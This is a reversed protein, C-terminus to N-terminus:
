VRLLESKHKAFIAATDDDDESVVSEMAAVIQMQNERLQGKGEEERRLKLRIRAIEVWKPRAPRVWVLVFKATFVAHELAVLSLLLSTPSISPVARKFADSYYYILLANIVVSVVSLLEMVPLLPGVGNAGRYRPRRSKFLKLADTRIELFNNFLIFMLAFPFALSFSTLYGFQVAMEIMEITTGRYRARRMEAEILQMEVEAVSLEEAVGRLTVKETGTSPADLKGAVQARRAKAARRCKRRENRLWSLALPALTYVNRVTELMVIVVVMYTNLTALCDNNPCADVLPKGDNAEVFLPVNQGQFFSIYIPATYANIFRFTVSKLLLANEYESDTRWIELDTLWIGFYQWLFDMLQMFAVNVVSGVYPGWWRSSFTAALISKWGLIAIAAVMVSSMLFGTVSVTLGIRWRQRLWLQVAFVIASPIFMFSIWNVYHRMFAFYFGINEGYYLRLEELPLPNWPRWLWSELSALSRADALPFVSHFVGNALMDDLSLGAGGDALDAELKAFIIRQRELSSFFSASTSHAFKDFSACTFAEYGMVNTVGGMMNKVSEKYEDVMQKQIGMREAEKELVGKAGSIILYMYKPKGDADLKSSQRRRLTLGAHMIQKYMKGRENKSLKKREAEHDGDSTHPRDHRFVVIVDALAESGGVPGAAVRNAVLDLNGFTAANHVIPLRSRLLDGQTRAKSGPSAGQEGLRVFRGEAPSASRQESDAAM